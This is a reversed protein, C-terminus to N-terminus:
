VELDEELKGFLVLSGADLEEMVLILSFYDLKPRVNILVKVQRLIVLDKLYVATRHDAESIVVTELM